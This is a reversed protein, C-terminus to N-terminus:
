DREGQKHDDDHQKTKVELGGPGNSVVDTRQDAHEAVQALAAYAHVIRHRQMLKRFYEIVEAIAPLPQDLLFLLQLVHTQHIMKRLETIAPVELYPELFQELCGLGITGRGHQHDVHIIELLDIVDM